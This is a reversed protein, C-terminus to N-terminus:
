DAGACARARMSDHRPFMHKTSRVASWCCEESCGTISNESGITIPIHKVPRVSGPIAEHDHKGHKKECRSFCVGRGVEVESLM